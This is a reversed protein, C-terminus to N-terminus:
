DACCDGHRRLTSLRLASFSRATSRGGCAATKEPAQQQCAGIKEGPFLRARVERYLVRKREVSISPEGSSKAALPGM